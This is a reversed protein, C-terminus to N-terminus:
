LVANLSPLSVVSLEVNDISNHETGSRSLTLTLACLPCSLCAHMIRARKSSTQGCIVVTLRLCLVVCCLM